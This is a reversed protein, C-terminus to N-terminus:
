LTMIYIYGINIIEEINVKNNLKYVYNRIYYWVNKETDNLSSLNVGFDIDVQKFRENLTRVDKIFNFKNFDTVGDFVADVIIKDLREM